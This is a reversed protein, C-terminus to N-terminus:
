ACSCSALDEDDLGVVSGREVVTVLGGMVTHTGTTPTATLAVTMYWVYNGVRLSNTQTTSLTVTFNGSAADTVTITPTTLVRGTPSQRIEAAPMYGALSLPVVVNDECESLWFEKFFSDGRVVRLDTREVNALTAFPM